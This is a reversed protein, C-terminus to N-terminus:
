KRRDPGGLEILNVSERLRSTVRGSYYEKLQESTYNTTGHFWGVLCKNVYRGEVIDGVINSKDGFNGKVDEAGIDEVCLAAETQFFVSPDNFANKIKQKYQVIAEDGAKKYLIALDKAEVVHYVRRNNKQFLRMMWTKGTGWNGALLLGKELSPNPVGANLALSVFEKSNSFYHCLLDFALQNDQDIKFKDEFLNRARYLMYEKTQEYTWGVEVLKRRTEAARRERAQDKLLAEKKRKADILASLREDETLEIHNYSALVEPLSLEPQNPNKLL